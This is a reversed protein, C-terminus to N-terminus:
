GIWCDGWPCPNNRLICKGKYDNVIGVSQRLNWYSFILICCLVIILSSKKM